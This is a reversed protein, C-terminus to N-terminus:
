NGGFSAIKDGEALGSLIQVFGNDGTVGVTVARTEATGSGNVLLVSKQDGTAIISRAPVALVDDAEGTLFSINASLGSKFRSDNEDFSLIVHYSNVGNINVAGPDVSVVAAKFTEGAGFTDLTVNAKTGPQIKGVDIESVNTELEFDSSSILSVAPAGPSAFEGVAVNVKTVTGAFSAVLATKAVANQAESLAAAAASVRTQAARIDIDEAGNELKTLATAREDATRKAAALNNEANLLASLDANAQAVFGGLTAQHEPVFPSIVSNVDHAILVDHYRDVLSKASKAADSMQRALDATLSLMASIKEEGSDRTTLKYDSLTKNYGDNASNYSSDADARLADGSPDYVRITDAYYDLNLRESAFSNSYLVSKIGSSISSFDVFATSMSTLSDDYSKSLDDNAKSAADKAALLDIAEPPNKLKELAINAADYAAQASKENALVDASALAALLQGKKVSDGEKVTVAVIKGALEFGQDVSNVPKTDGTTKVTETLNMKQVTIFNYNQKGSKMMTVALTGCIAVAIVGLSLYIVLAKKNKM